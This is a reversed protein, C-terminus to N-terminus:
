VHHTKRMSLAVIVVAAVIFAAWFPWTAPLVPESEPWVSGEPLEEPRPPISPRGADVWATYWLSALDTAAASVQSVFLPQTKDWLAQFYEPSDVANGAATSAKRDAEYIEPYRAHAQEIWGLLAAWPDALYVAKGPKILSARWFFAAMSEEWRLHVGVRNYNETTHLPQHVDAVYHGMAAAVAAARTWDNSRMAGTLMRQLDLIVWPALGNGAALKRSTMGALKKYDPPLNTAAVGKFRELDIYHRPGEAADGGKWLDPGISHYALLGGYPRWDKMEDPVAQAAAKSIDMHVRGGWAPATRALAVVLLSAVGLLRMRNTQRWM